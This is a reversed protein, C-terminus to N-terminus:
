SGNSDSIKTALPGILLYHKRAAQSDLDIVDAMPTHKNVTFLKIWSAGLVHTDAGGDIISLYYMVHSLQTMYNFNVKCQILNMHVRINNGNSIANPAVTVNNITAVEMIDLEEVM